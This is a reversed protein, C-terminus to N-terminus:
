SFCYVTALDPFINKGFPNTYPQELVLCRMAQRLIAERERSRAKEPPLAWVERHFTSSPDKEAILQSAASITKEL